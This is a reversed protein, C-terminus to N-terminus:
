SGAKKLKKNEERGYGYGYGYRQEYGYTNYGYGYAVKRVDFKTLVCGLVKARAMRLRHLSALIPSRGTKGAEVVLISGGVISSILPADALGMVPPGDFVVVDYLEEAQACFMRLRNDALLEAPTPPLPGATIVTLGEQEAPQTVEELRMSGTLVNSLGVKTDLGLQSHVSPKRLDADVLLTRAGLRALSHAIAISTTTKGEGPRTSVVLLSRPIGESTSFQLATRISFYAEWFSSRPDKMAERPSMGKTLLPVSGLLPIHLKTEVEAPRRIAQDMAEAIFAGIAGIILGLILGLGANIMPKPKSPGHPVEARDVISINNTTVGATVGVEKYRQLLADYLIRNTDLDRTLTNYAISREKLDLVSGKLQNVRAQLTKEQDASAMYDRYLSQRITDAAAQIQHDTEDIQAKLQTMAPYEPKYLRLNDQYQAQLQVKQKSLEQVVPSALVQEVGLGASQSQKWRQEAAIRAATAVGLDTNMAALDADSLSEGTTSQNNGVGSQGEHLTIIQQQIAYAVAARESAELKDKAIGIQKQLFDRAYASSEFRRELNMAIFNEAVANDLEAAEQPSTSNFMLQVLRSGRTPNVTLGGQVRRVAAEHLMAQSRPGGARGGKGRDFGMAHLFSPSSTLNLTDVVKEALARSKLLGYQTQYFDLGAAYEERPTTDQTNMVKAAERDIEITMKATYIPTTMMTLVVAIALAAVVSIIFIWRHKWVFQWYRAVDFQDRGGEDTFDVAGVPGLARDSPLSLSRAFQVRHIPPIGKSDSDDGLAM